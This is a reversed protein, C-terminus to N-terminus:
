SKDRKKPNKARSLYNNVSATSIGYKEALRVVKAGAKRDSVLRAARAATLKPKAGYSLGRAQIAKIGASTRQATMQAELQAVLGLIGLVFQGMPTTFDFQEQLSRFNAGADHIRDLLVYLQRANRVLRDLKWVVLTDGARLDLFAKELEPRKGRTASRKEEYINWCGAAKLADLQLRLEQDETSVRAYGILKGTTANKKQVGVGAGRQLTRRVKDVFFVFTLNITHITTSL